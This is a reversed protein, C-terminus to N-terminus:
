ILYAFLYELAKTLGLFLKSIQFFNSITFWEVKINRNEDHFKGDLINDESEDKDDKNPAKNYSLCNKNNNSSDLGMSDQSFMSNNRIWNKDEEAITSGKTLPTKNNVWNSNNLLNSKIIVSLDIPNCNENGNIKPSSIINM